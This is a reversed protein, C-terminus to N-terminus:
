DCAEENPDYAVGITNTNCLKCAGRHARLALSAKLPLECGNDYAMVLTQVAVACDEPACDSACNGSDLAEVADAIGAADECDLEPCGPAMIDLQRPVFCPQYGKGVYDRTADAARRALEIQVGCLDSHAQLVLFRMKCEGSVGVNSDGDCGNEPLELYELADRVQKAANSGCSLTINMNEKLFCACSETPACYAGGGVLYVLLCLLVLVLLVPPPREDFRTM